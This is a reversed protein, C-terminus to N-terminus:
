QHLIGLKKNVCDSSSVILNQHFNSLRDLILKFFYTKILYSCQPCSTQGFIAFNTDINEAHALLHIIVLKM